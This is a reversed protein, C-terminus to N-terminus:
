KTSQHTYHQIRTQPFVIRCSWRARWGVRQPLSPSLQMVDYEKFFLGRHHNQVCGRGCVSRGIDDSMFTASLLAKLLVFPNRINPSHLTVEIRLRKDKGDQCLLPPTYVLVM